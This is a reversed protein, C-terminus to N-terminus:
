AADPVKRPRLTLISGPEPRGNPLRRQATRSSRAPKAEAAADDSRPQRSASCSLANRAAVPDFRLRPKPGSGLAVAGLEDAHEYVWKRSTGLERALEAADVLPVRDAISPNPASSGAHEHLGTPAM